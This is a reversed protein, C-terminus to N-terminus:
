SDIKRTPRKKRRGYLILNRHTPDPSFACYYEGTEGDQWKDMFAIHKHDERNTFILDGEPEEYCFGYNCDKEPRRLWGFSWHWGSGVKKDKVVKEVRRPCDNGKPIDHEDRGQDTSKGMDLM